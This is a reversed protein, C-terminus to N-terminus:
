IKTQYEEEIPIIINVGKFWHRASVMWYTGAVFITMVFVIPAWNLSKPDNPLVFLVSTSILFISSIIGAPVGWIGLDYDAKPFKDRFYTVRLIIPIAYSVQYGITSISTIAQFATTSVLQLMVLSVDMLFVALIAYIAVQNKTSVKRVYQSFPFCNDRSMAFTTRITVTLSSMGSFFFNVVLFATLINGITKGGTIQFVTSIGLFEPANSEAFSKVDYATAYLLGLIYILGLVATAVCTNVIGVACATSAEKTEEAMHASSEYGTFSYTASLTGLLVVYSVSKYGTDNYFGFFLESATAHHSPGATFAILVGVVAFTTIVQWSAGATSIWGQTDVRLLNIAAWIVLSIIGVLVKFENSLPGYSGLVLCISVFESFAVALFADSAVNGLLNSWGTLYSILPSYKPPSMRGAWYYVSGSNPYASCIEAMSYGCIITFVSAGIWSWLVVAPGGYALATPFLSSISSIVAVATFNFAFSMFSNFGRFLEQKYGLVQDKPNHPDNAETPITNDIM